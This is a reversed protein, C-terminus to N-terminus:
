PRHAGRRPRCSRRASRSQAVGGSRPARLRCGSRTRPGARAAAVPPLVAARAPGERLARVPGPAPRVRPAVPVRPRAALLAPAAARASPLAAARVPGSLLAAARVPGSLPAEARGSGAPRAALPAQEAAGVRGARRAAVQRQVSARAGIRASARACVLRPTEGPVPEREVRHTQVSLCASVPLLAPRPPPLSPSATPREQGSGREPGPARARKPGAATRCGRRRPRKTLARDARM